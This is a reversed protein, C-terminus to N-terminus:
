KLRFEITVTIKGSVPKGDHLAPTFRVVRLAEEVSDKFDQHVAPPLFDWRDPKGTMDIWVIVKVSATHGNRRQSEPYRPQLPSSLRPGQAPGSARPASVPPPGDSLEVSPAPKVQRKIRLRPSSIAREIATGFSDSAALSWASEAPELADDVVFEPAEVQLLETPDVAPMVPPALALQRRARPRTEQSPAAIAMPQEYRVSPRYRAIAPVLACAVAVLGMHFALSVLWLKSRPKKLSREMRERHPPPLHQMSAAGLEATLEAPSLKVAVEAPPLLISIEARPLQVSIEACEALPLPAQAPDTRHIM